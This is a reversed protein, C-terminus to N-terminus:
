GAVLAPFESVVAAAATSAAHDARMLASEAAQELATALMQAEHPLMVVGNTFVLGPASEIGVPGSMTKVTAKM